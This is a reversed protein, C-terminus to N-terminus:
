FVLNGYKKECATFMRMIEIGSVIQKPEAYYSIIKDAQFQKFVYRPAGKTIRYMLGGKIDWMFSFLYTIDILPIIEDQGALYSIQENEYVANIAEEYTADDGVFGQKVASLYCVDGFTVETKDLIQTIVDASQSYVSFSIFLGIFIIFLKKM